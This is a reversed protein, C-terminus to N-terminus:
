IKQVKVIPLTLIVERKDSDVKYAGGFDNIIMHNIENSIIREQLNETTSLLSNVISVKVFEKDIAEWRIIPADTPRSNELISKIVQIFRNNDVNIWIFNGTPLENTIRHGDAALSNIISGLTSVIEVNNLNYKMMNAQLRSLDLISNILKMLQESTDTIRQSIIKREQQDLEGDAALLASDKLVFNLPIKISSSINTLFREKAINALEMDFNLKKQEQEAKSLIRLSSYTHAMFCILIFIIAAILIIFSLQTIHRIQEKKLLLSDTNYDKKLQEVQKNLIAIRLSDKIPWIRKYLALAEQQKGMEKLIQAKKFEWTNNELTDPSITILRDIETIAQSLEKNIYFYRHRATHYLQEYISFGKTFYKDVLGMYKKAEVLNQNDLYYNLYHLSNILLNNNSKSFYKNIISEQRRISELRKPNNKLIAYIDILRDSIELNARLKKTQAFTVYAKEFFIVAKEYRFTYSNVYGLSQYSYGIGVDSKLEQAEKLMKYAEKEVLEYQGKLNLIDIGVRKGEFLQDYLEAKRALPELLAIWKKVADLDYMNGAAVIYLQYARCTYFANDQKQAEQLLVSMYYSYKEPNDKTLYTLSNLLKLKTSDNPAVNLKRLLTSERELDYAYANCISMLLCIIFLFKRM